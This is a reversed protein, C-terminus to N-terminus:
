LLLCTILLLRISRILFMVTLSFLYVLFLSCSLFMHLLTFLSTTPSNNSISSNWWLNWFNVSWGCLKVSVGVVEILTLWSWILCFRTSNSNVLLTFSLFYVVLCIFPALNTDCCVTIMKIIIIICWGINIIVYYNKIIAYIFACIDPIQISLRASSVGFTTEKTTSWRFVEAVIETLSLCFLCWLLYQQEPSRSMWSMKSVSASLSRMALLTMSIALSHTQNPTSSTNTKLKVAWVQSLEAKM